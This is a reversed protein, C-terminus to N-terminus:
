FHIRYIKWLLKFKTQSQNFSPALNSNSAHIRIYYISNTLCPSGVHWRWRFMQRRSSSCKSNHLQIFACSELLRFPQLESELFFSSYAIFLFIDLFAGNLFRLVEPGVWKTKRFPEKQESFKGAAPHASRWTVSTELGQLRHFVNSFQRRLSSHHSCITSTM